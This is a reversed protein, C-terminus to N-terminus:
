SFSITASSTGQASALNTSTEAVNATADPPVQEVSNSCLHLAGLKDVVLKYQEMRKPLKNAALHCNICCLSTDYVRMVMAVAGKSGEKRGFSM